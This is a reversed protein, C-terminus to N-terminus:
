VSRKCGTQEVINLLLSIVQLPYPQWRWEVRKMDHGHWAHVEGGELCKSMVKRVGQFTIHKPCVNLRTCERLPFISREKRIRQCWCSKLKSLQHCPKNMVRSISDMTQFIKCTYLCLTGPGYVVKTKFHHTRYLSLWCGKFQLVTLKSFRAQISCLDLVISLTWGVGRM